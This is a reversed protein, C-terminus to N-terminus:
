PARRGPSSPPSAANRGGVATRTPSAAGSNTARRRGARARRGHDGALGAFIAASIGVAVDGHDHGVRHDLRDRRRQRRGADLVTPGRAGPEVVADRDHRHADDLAELEVAHDDDLRRAITASSACPRRASYTASVRLVRRSVTTWAAAAGPRRHTRADDSRAATATENLPRRWSCALSSDLLHALNRRGQRRRGPSTARRRPPCLRDRGRVPGLLEPSTTRSARAPPRGCSTSAPWRRPRATAAVIKNARARRDRDVLRELLEATTGHPCRRRATARDVDRPTPPISPRRRARVSCHSWPSAAAAATSALPERPSSSAPAPSRASASTAGDIEVTM